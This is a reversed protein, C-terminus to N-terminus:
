QVIEESREPMYEAEYREIAVCRSCQMEVEMKARLHWKEAGKMQCRCPCGKLANYLQETITM